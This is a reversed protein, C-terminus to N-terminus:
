KEPANSQESRQSDTDRSQVHTAWTQAVWGRVTRLFDRGFEMRRQWWTFHGLGHHQVEGDDRIQQAFPEAAAIADRSRRKQEQWNEEGDQSAPEAEPARPPPPAPPEPEPEGAAPPTGGGAADRAMARAAAVTPLQDRDIDVLRARLDAAKIGALRRALSHEDGARDIICFDRRDGKALIYGHEHLAAAFAQGNDSEHWLATVEAKIAKPDLKSEQGRFSEWDQPNREPREKGRDKVLVSEVAELGFAQEIERAAREHRAYTLSDSIATMSDADIRSWVVHRHTRGDKEHEVVIRPQGTLGLERELTDAALEWQQPTLTEGLAPNLNAHYFYNTCRTGSAVAEMERLAGRVDQAALGRIEAVSVRENQDARMLHRAFFAGGSRSGGNIIM